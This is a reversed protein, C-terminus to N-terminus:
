GKIDDGDLASFLWKGPLGFMRPLDQYNNEGTFIRYFYKWFPSSQRLLLPVWLHPALDLLFLFAKAVQLEPQIEKDIKRQYTVLQTQDMMTGWITEAAIQGSRMAYYIGEGAMPEILGAADGILLTRGYVIREDPVRIPLHHGAEIYPRNEGIERRYYAVVDDYYARFQKAVSKPGGVGASFNTAKPFVWAYGSALCGFDLSATDKWEELIEPAGQIEREIAVSLRRFPLAGVAKRTMSNAGDAGVIYKAVFEKQPTSVVYHDGLDNLGKLPAQEYVDAGAKAATEVLFNDFTDRMVMYIWPYPAEIVFQTKLNVTVRLKTIRREIVPDISFDLIKEVHRAVVGGCAKYRPIKEKEILAVRLSRKALEYATIAGSPGGGVVVVDYTEM